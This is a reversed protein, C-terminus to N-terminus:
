RFLPSLYIKLHLYIVNLTLNEYIIYEIKIAQKYKEKKTTTFNVM